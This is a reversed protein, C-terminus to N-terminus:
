KGVLNKLGGLTEGTLTTESTASKVGLCELNEEFVVLNVRQSLGDVPHRVSYVGPELRTQLAQSIGRELPM